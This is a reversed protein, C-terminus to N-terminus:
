LEARDGLLDTASPLDHKFVTLDVTVLQGIQGTLIGLDPGIGDGGGGRQERPQGQHGVAPLATAQAM